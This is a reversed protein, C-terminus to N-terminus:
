GSALHDYVEAAFYELDGGLKDVCNPDWACYRSFMMRGARDQDDGISLAKCLGPTFVAHLVMGSLSLSHPRGMGCYDAFYLDSLDYVCHTCM